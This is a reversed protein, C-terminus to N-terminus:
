PRKWGKELWLPVYEAPIFLRDEPLPVDPYSQPRVLTDSDSGLDVLWRDPPLRRSLMRLEFAQLRLPQAAGYLGIQLLRALKVSARAAALAVDDAAAQAVTGPAPVADVIAPAARWPNTNPWIFYPSVWGAALLRENYSGLRQAPPVNPQDPRLYGLLRGYRDMVDGAFALFFRFDEADVGLAAMDKSVVDVLAIRAAAALRAHNVAEGVVAQAELHAVLGPDAAPGLPTAGPAFAAALAQEWRPDDLAVLPARTGPLPATVEPADVGLLRVGLDGAALVAVTDGDHVDKGVPDSTGASRLGARGVVLGSRLQEVAKTM